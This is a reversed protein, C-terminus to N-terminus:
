PEGGSFGKDKHQIRVGLKREASLLMIAIAKSKDRQVHTSYPNLVMATQRCGTGASMVTYDLPTWGQDDPTSLMDQLIGQQEGAAILTAAATKHGQIGAISLPTLRRACNFLLDAGDQVLTAVSVDQPTQHDNLLHWLAAGKVPDRGRQAAGM